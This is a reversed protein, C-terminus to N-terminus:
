KEVAVLFPTLSLWVYRYYEENDGGGEAGEKGIFSSGFTDKTTFVEDLENRLKKENTKKKLKIFFSAFQPPVGYRLVAEVFLRMAKLHVWAVFVDSFAARCIRLLHSEQKSKEAELKSRKKITNKYDDESYTFDRVMFRKAKAASKFSDLSKKFLTVHWMTNGENDATLMKGSSRPVVFDTLSEYSALWLKDMGRPVIVVTTTLHETYVFNAVDVADPTILDTLDRSVYSVGEKKSISLHASKVENFAGTKIRVEDDLKSVNLHLSDMNDRIQRNRPYKADDWSFKTLYEGVTESTTWFSRFPNQEMELKYKKAM